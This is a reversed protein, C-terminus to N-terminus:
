VRDKLDDHRTATLNPRVDAPFVRRVSRPDDPGREPVRLVPSGDLRLAVPTHLTRGSTEGRCFVWAYITTAQEARALGEPRVGFPRAACSVPEDGTGTTGRFTTEMLKVVRAGLGAALDGTPRPQTGIRRASVVAFLGAALLGLTVLVALIRGRMIGSWLRRPGAVPAFPPSGGAHAM